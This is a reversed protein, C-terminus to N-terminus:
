PAASTGDIFPSFFFLLRLFWWHRSIAGNLKDYFIPSASVHALLTKLMAM